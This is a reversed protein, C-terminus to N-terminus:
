DAIMRNFPLHHMVIHLQDPSDGQMFPMNRLHGCPLSLGQNRGTGQIQIGQTTFIALQHGDIIVEGTPVRMPHTGKKFKQTKRNTTNLVTHRRGLTALHVFFINSVTRSRFKPKIVKAVVAHGGANIVLHLPIVIETDNILRVGNQDVLCSCRQNNGTGHAFVMRKWEHFHFWQHGFKKITLQLLAILQGFLCFPGKGLLVQIILGGIFCGGFKKLHLSSHRGM